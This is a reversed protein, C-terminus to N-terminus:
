CRMSNVQTVQWMLGIKVSFFNLKTLIKKRRFLTKWPIIEMKRNYIVM